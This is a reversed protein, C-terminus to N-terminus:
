NPHEKGASSQLRRGCDETFHYESYTVRKKTGQTLILAVNVEGFEKKILKNMERALRDFEKLLPKLLKYADSPCASLKKPDGIDVINNCGSEMFDIFRVALVGTNLTAGALDTINHVPYMAIAVFFKKLASVGYKTKQANTITYRPFQTIAFGDALKAHMFYHVYMVVARKRRERLREKEEASADAKHHAKDAVVIEILPNDEAEKFHKLRGNITVDNCCFDVVHRRQESNALVLRNVCDMVNSLFFNHCIDESDRTGGRHETIQVSDESCLAKLAENQRSGPVFGKTSSEHCVVYKKHEYKANAQIGGTGMVRHTLSPADVYLNACVPQVDVANYVTKGDWDGAMLSKGTGESGIIWHFIPFKAAPTRYEKTKFSFKYNTKEDVKGCLYHWRMLSRCLDQLGTSLAQKAEENASIKANLYTITKAHDFKGTELFEVAIPCGQKAEEAFHEYCQCNNIPSGPPCGNFHLPLALVKLAEDTGKTLSTTERIMNFNSKFYFTALPKDVVIKGSRDEKKMVCKNLQNANFDGLKIPRAGYHSSPHPYGFKTIDYTFSYYQKSDKVQILYPRMSVGTLYQTDAIHQNKWITDGLYNFATFTQDTYHDLHQKSVERHMLEPLLRLVEDPVDTRLLDSDFEGSPLILPYVEKMRAIIKTRQEM